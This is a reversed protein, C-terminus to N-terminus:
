ASQAKQMLVLVCTSRCHQIHQCFDGFYENANDRGPQGMGGLMTYLSRLGSLRPKSTRSVIRSKSKPIAFSSLHLSLTSFSWYLQVGNVPVLTLEALIEQDNQLPTSTVTFSEALAAPESSQQRRGETRANLLPVHRRLDCKRKGVAQFGIDVPEAEKQPMKTGELDGVSVNRLRIM